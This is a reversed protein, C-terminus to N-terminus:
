LNIGAVAPCPRDRTAIRYCAAETLSTGLLALATRIDASRDACRDVRRIGTRDYTGGVVAGMGACADAGTIVAAAIAIMYPDQMVVAILGDVPMHAAGADAGAIIYGGTLQDTIDAGGAPRGARM